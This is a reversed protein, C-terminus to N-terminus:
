KRKRKGKVKVKVKLIFIEHAIAKGQVWFVQKKVWTPHAVRVQFGQMNFNQHARRV